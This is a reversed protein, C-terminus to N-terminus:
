QHTRNPRLGTCRDRQVPISSKPSSRQTNSLKDPAQKGFSCQRKSQVIGSSVQKYEMFHQADQIWKCCYYQFANSSVAISIPLVVVPKFVSSESDKSSRLSIRAPLPVAPLNKTESSSYKSIRSNMLLKFLSGHFTRQFSYNKPNM